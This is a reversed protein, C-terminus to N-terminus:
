PRSSSAKRRGDLSKLARAAAIVDDVWQNWLSGFPLGNGYEAWFPAFIDLLTWDQAQAQQNGDHIHQVLEGARIVTKGSYSAQMDCFTLLFIASPFEESIEGLHRDVIGSGGDKFTNHFSRAKNVSEDVYGLNRVAKFEVLERLGDLDVHASKASPNNAFEKAAEKELQEILRHHDKFPLKWQEHSLKDFAYNRQAVWDVLEASPQKLRAAIQNIETPSNALVDLTYDIWNSM